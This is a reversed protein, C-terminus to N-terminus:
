IKSNSFTSIANEYGQIAVGINTSSNVAGLQSDANQENLFAQLRHSSEVQATLWEKEQEKKSAIAKKYSKEEQQKMIETIEKYRKDWWSEGKDKSLKKTGSSGMPFSQGLHEDISAGFHETCYSPTYGPMSSFPNNVSRNEVTYGLVWAEYDPDNKMQEWGDETISWVEHENKQSADYPISDMLGTFFQKYEDMYMNERCVNEVGNEKLVNKGALVKSDVQAAQDPNRKKFDVTASTYKKKSVNKEIQSSFSTGVNEVTGSYNTKTSNCSSTIRMIQVGGM